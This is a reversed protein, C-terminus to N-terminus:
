CRSGTIGHSAFGPMRSSCRSNSSAPEQGYGPLYFGLVFAAGAKVVERRSLTTTM